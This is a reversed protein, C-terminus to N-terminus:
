LVASDNYYSRPGRLKEFTLLEVAISPASHGFDESAEEEVGVVVGVVGRRRPKALWTKMFLHM